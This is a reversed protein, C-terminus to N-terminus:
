KKKNNIQNQIYLKVDADETTCVACYAEQINTYNPDKITNIVTCTTCRWENKQLDPTFTKKLIPLEIQDIRLNVDEEQKPQEEAPTPDQDSGAPADTSQM